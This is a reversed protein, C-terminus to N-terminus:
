IFRAKFKNEDEVDVGTATRFKWGRPALVTTPVNLRVGAKAGSEDIGTQGGSRLSSFPLLEYVTKLVKYIFEDLQEQTYKNKMTYIGNGAINVSFGPKIGRSKLYDVIAEGVAEEDYLGPSIDIDVYVKKNITEAAKRTLREGGTSFNVAFALTVDAKANEITRERYGFSKCELFKIKM